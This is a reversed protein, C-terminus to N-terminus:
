AEMRSGPLTCTPRESVIRGRGSRIVSSWLDSGPDGPKRTLLKRVHEPDIVGRTRYLAQAIVDCRKAKGKTACPRCGSCTIESSLVQGARGRDVSRRGWQQPGVCSEPGHHIAVGEMYPEKM